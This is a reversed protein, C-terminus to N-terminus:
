CVPNSFSLLVMRLRANGMTLVPARIGLLQHIVEVPLKEANRWFPFSAFRIVRLAFYIILINAFCIPLM